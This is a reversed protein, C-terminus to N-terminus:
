FRLRGFVKQVSNVEGYELKTQGQSIITSVPYKLSELIGKTYDVNGYNSWATHITRYTM